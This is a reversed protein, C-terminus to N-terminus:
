IWVRIEGRAGAAGAGGGGGPASGAVGQGGGNGGFVSTGGVGLAGSGTRSGGGGGGGFLANGGAGGSSNASNAASGGGGGGSELSPEGGAVGPNGAVQAAGIGAGLSGNPLGGGGRAGNVGTAGVGQYATLLSGFTTNSGNSGIAGGAGITVSVSSPLDGARVILRKYGGGGGGGQGLGGTAGGGGGGWGEITVMADDDLGAPKTWTGSSTFQWYYRQSGGGLSSLLPSLIRFAGGIYELLSRLGSGIAGAILASGAPDLVALASGGNLALTVGATNSAGWTIEFKMGDVLGGGDLPPDLTATVANATGGVATLPLASADFLTKFRESYQRMLGSAGGGPLPPTSLDSFTLRSAM